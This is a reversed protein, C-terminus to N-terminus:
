SLPSPLWWCEGINPRILWVELNQNFVCVLIGTEPFETGLSLSRKVTYVSAVLQCPHHIHFTRVNLSNGGGALLRFRAIVGLM